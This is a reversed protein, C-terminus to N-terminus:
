RLLWKICSPSKGRVAAELPSERRGLGLMGAGQLTFEVLQQFRM